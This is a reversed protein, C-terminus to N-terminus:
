CDLNRLMCKLTIRGSIVTQRMQLLFQKIGADIKRNTGWANVAYYMLDDKNKSHWDFRLLAHGIEHAIIQTLQNASVNPSPNIRIDDRYCRQTKPSDINSTHGAWVGGWNDPLPYGNHRRVTVGYTPINNFPPYNSDVGVVKFGMALNWINTAADLQTRTIGPGMGDNVAYVWLMPCTPCEPSLLKRNSPRGNCSTTDRPELPTYKWEETSPDMKGGGSFCVLQASAPAAAFLSAFGLLLGWLPAKAYSLTARERKRKQYKAETVGAPAPVVPAPVKSKNRALKESMITKLTKTPKEDARAKSAETSFGNPYRKQLKQVNAAAVESLLWGNVNALAAVYWLVDGLELLLKNGDLEHGHGLHKKIMDAVEGSEGTLGLAYVSLEKETPWDVTHAPGTTAAIGQYEDFNM